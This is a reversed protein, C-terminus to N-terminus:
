GRVARWALRGAEVRAEVLGQRSLCALSGRVTAEILMLMGPEPVAGLRSAARAAIEGSDLPERGTEELILNLLAQIAGRNADILGQAEPAPTLPGHSPQVAELRPLMGEIVGLSELAVCPDLHYPAGYRELVREGFLADAAYLTGDPALIGAQGLTHGPLPVAELPGVSAPPSYAEDVRVGPARFPLLPSSPDLPYSFTALVRLRPDAVAPADAEPALVRLSTGAGTLADALGEAIAAHHDSHHHTVVIVVSGSGRLKKALQKARKRGHGPDVVYVTGDCSAM